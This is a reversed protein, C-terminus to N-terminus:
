ARRVPKMGRSGLFLALTNSSVMWQDKGTPRVETSLAGEIYGVEYDDASFSLKSYSYWCGTGFQKRQADDITIQDDNLRRGTAALWQEKLTSTHQTSSVLSLEGGLLIELARAPIHGVADLRANVRRAVGLRKMKEADQARRGVNCYSCYSATMGHICSVSM